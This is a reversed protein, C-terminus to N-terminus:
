RQFLYGREDLAVFNFDGDQANGVDRRLLRKVNQDIRSYFADEIERGRLQFRGRPADDVVDVEGHFQFVQYVKYIRPL